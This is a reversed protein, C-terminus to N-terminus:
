NVKGSLDAGAKFKVENKAAIKIEKGTQPNRGIRAAQEALRVATNVLRGLERREPGTAAVTVEWPIYDHGLVERLTAEDDIDGLCAEPDGACPDVIAVTVETEEGFRGFGALDVIGGGNVEDVITNLLSNYAARVIRMELGSVRAMAQVLEGDSRLNAGRNGQSDFWYPSTIEPETDDASSGPKAIVMGRRIDKKDIGGLVLGATEGQHARVLERRGDENIIIVGLVEARLREPEQPRENPGGPRGNGNERKLADSIDIGLTANIVLQVDTADVRGDDNVDGIEFPRVTELLDLPILGAARGPALVSPNGPLLFVTDGSGISGRGPGMVLVSGDGPVVSGDGPILSGDGFREVFEVRMKYADRQAEGSGEFASGAVFDVEAISRVGDVSAPKQKTVFTGFGQLKIRDGNKLFHATADIFGDVARKADPKSISADNALQDILQAKNMAHAPLAWACLVMLAALAPFPQFTNM